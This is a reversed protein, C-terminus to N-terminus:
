FFIDYRYLVNLCNRFEIKFKNSHLFGRYIAHVEALEEPTLVGMRSAQANEEVQARTLM